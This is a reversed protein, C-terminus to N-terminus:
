QGADGFAKHYAEATELATKEWLFNKEIHSKLGPTKAKQMSELVKERINRIGAPNIYSAFGAFYEKACGERTIAINAGALGAELAALGPTEYWSPLVFTKCAAYASELMESGHDLAPLFVTNKGAEKCARYYAESGQKPNGIVVLRGIGDVAKILSLVNKREEIRGAYLAFDKLGFKKEFMEPSAKAFRKEVGNHIISIKEPRVRFTKELVRAEAISSPAVVDAMALMKKVASVGFFDLRNILEVALLKLRAALPRDWLIAHALSPWYVPSVVIKLGAERAKTVQELCDRHLSFSHFLDFGAFDQRGDFLSTEFGLAEVYQRSKMLLIEGGGKNEFANPSTGFLIRKKM